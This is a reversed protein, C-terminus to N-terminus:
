SEVVNFKESYAVVRVNRIPNPKYLGEWMLVYEGCEASKPIKIKVKMKRKGVPVNGVIPSYTIIFDNVLQKTIQAPLPMKKNIDMEYVLYEGKKVEKDQNHIKLPGNIVIPTYPWVLWYSVISWTLVFIFIGIKRLLIHNKHDNRRRKM